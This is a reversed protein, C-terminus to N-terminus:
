TWMCCGKYHTFYMILRCHRWRLHHLIGRLETARTNSKPSSPQSNLAWVPCLLRAGPPNKVALECGSGSSAPELPYVMAVQDLKMWSVSADSPPKKSGHGQYPIILKGSDAPELTWAPEPLESIANQTHSPSPIVVGHWASLTSVARMGTICDFM